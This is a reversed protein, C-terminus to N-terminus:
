VRIAAAQRRNRIQTSSVAHLVGNEQDKKSDVASQEPPRSNSGNMIECKGTVREEIGPVYGKLMMM